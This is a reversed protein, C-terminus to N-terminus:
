EVWRVVQDTGAKLLVTRGMVQVDARIVPQGDHYSVGAFTGALGELPGLMALREGIDYPCVWAGRPRDRAAIQEMRWLYDQEVAAAFEQVKPWAREPLDQVRRVTVRKGEIRLGDRCRDWQGITVSLFIYGDLAPAEYAVMKGAKRDRRENVKRPSIACGGMETIAEAMRLAYAPSTTALIRLHTM